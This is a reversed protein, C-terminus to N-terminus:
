IIYGPASTYPGAVVLRGADTSLPLGPLARPAPGVIAEAGRTPVFKSFHCACLLTQDAARWLNVDCGHHTCIASYAVVGDAARSRTADDCAAPDVRVLVLKYLRTADRRRGAVGDYAYATVPKAGARIHEPRLPERSALDEAVLLDGARPIDDPSAKPGAGAALLPGAAILKLAVRRRAM